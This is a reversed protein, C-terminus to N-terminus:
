ICTVSKLDYYQPPGKGPPFAQAENFCLVFAFWTSVNPAKGPRFRRPRM